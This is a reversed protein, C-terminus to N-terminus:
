AFDNPLDDPGHDAPRKKIFGILKLVIQLTMLGVGFAAVTKAPYVPLFIDGILAESKKWSTLTNSCMAWLLFGYVGMEILYNFILLRTRNIPRLRSLVADVRVHSDRAECESLGVFSVIALMFGALGIAGPLPHNLKRGVINVVIITAMIFVFVAAIVSVIFNIRKM